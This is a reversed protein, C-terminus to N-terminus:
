TKKLSLQKAQQPTVPSSMAEERSAQTDMPVLNETYMCTEENEPMSSSPERMHVAFHTDETKPLMTPTPTACPEETIQNGQPGPDTFKILLDSEPGKQPTGSVNPSIGAKGYSAQAPLIGCQALPNTESPTQPIAREGLLSATQRTDSTASCEIKSLYHSAHSDSSAAVDVHARRIQEALQGHGVSRASLVKCLAAWTRDKGIQLWKLIMSQFKDDADHHNRDIVQLDPPRIKLGLGINKWKSRADWLKEQIDFLDDERLVGDTAM